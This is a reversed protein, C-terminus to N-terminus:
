DIFLVLMDARAAWGVRLRPYMDDGPELMEQYQVIGNFVSNVRSVKIKFEGGDRLLSSMGSMGTQLRGLHFVEDGAKLPALLSAHVVIGRQSLERLMLWQKYVRTEVTQRSTLDNPTPPARCACFAQCSFAEHPSAKQAAEQEDEQLLEQSAQQSAEQSAEQFATCSPTTVCYVNLANGLAEQDTPTLTMRLLHRLNCNAMSILTADSLKFYYLASAGGLCLLRRFVQRPTVNDKFLPPNALHLQFRTNVLDSWASSTQTCKHSGEFRALSVADLFRCIESQVDTPLMGFRM